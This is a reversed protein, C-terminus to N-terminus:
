NYEPKELLEILFDIQQLKENISKIAERRHVIDQIDQCML